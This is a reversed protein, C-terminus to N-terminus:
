DPRAAPSLYRRAPACRLAPGPLRERKGATASFVELMRDRLRRYEPHDFLDERRRPRPLNVDLIADIAAEPGDTMVAIRDSLLIAEEIDHTVLLASAHTSSWLDILVEQLEARTVGDLSAFPEDLLLLRPSMAFARAVGVRQRM